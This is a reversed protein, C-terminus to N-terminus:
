CANPDARAELLDYAALYEDQNPNWALRRMESMVDDWDGGGIEPFDAWDADDVLDHLASRAITNIARQIRATEMQADIQPQAEVANKVWDPEEQGNGAPHRAMADDLDSAHEERVIALLAMAIDKTDDTAKSM